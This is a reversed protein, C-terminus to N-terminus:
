NKIKLVALILFLPTVFTRIAAHFTTLLAIVALVLLIDRSVSGRNSKWLNWPILFLLISYFAGFIGHDAFLRSLEVHASIRDLNIDRLYQSAGLGVGTIPYKFFLAFDKEFIGLRGSLFHDTTIEKIGLMTGQTQGQYRLLLNGGTIGDAFNFIIYLILLTIIGYLISNNTKSRRYIGKSLSSFQQLFILVIIGFVGVMMGGRSFSLLGQFSFGGLILVDLIINGSFKLKKFLSYFSLFMGLGLITSVQNSSHGATTSFQAKLNFEIDNFDPTKIYTFILSSLCGWFIFKLIQDLMMKSIQLRNAFTIGLGIALPGLYNNIIDSLDTQKSFDYFLAPTILFVMWLGAKSRIGIYVIGIIGIFVLLYKSLEYPLFPSTKAMRDLVEFSILYSFILLFFAPKRDSLFSISKWFNSFFIFYFWGILVFPTLTCLVGLAIHALTWFLNKRDSAMGEIVM